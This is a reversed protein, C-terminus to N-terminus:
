AQKALEAAAQEPPVINVFVGTGLEFGALTTLKPLLHVHWHYTGSFRYPASHFVINYPIDGVTGALKALASRIARGVQATVQRPSEHMHGGHQRPVLLMEYPTMSWFPCILVVDEGADVIRHGAAEEAAVTTCLLCNGAFRAFGAQEDLLERPVFAMGLLQAHPHELSAGAERGANVIVQSYRLTAHECHSTLRDCIAEMVVEAHADPLSEWGQDHRPSLVLVEHTGSAPAQSFVPGAHDVVLAEDGCFVPYRNPLVRVMWGDESTGYDAIHGDGDAGGPCFPCPRDHLPEVELSRHAFAGTRASRATAVVVWRGTLPDLRLQSGSALGLGESSAGEM